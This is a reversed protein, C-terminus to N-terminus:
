QAAGQVVRSEPLPLKAKQLARLGAELLQGGLEFSKQPTKAWAYIKVHMAIDTLEGVGVGPVRDPDISACTKAAEILVQKVTDYDAGYGVSFQASAMSAPDRLSYNRIVESSLVDNPIALRRNDGTKIFTYTLTIDEVEGTDGRINVVDGVRIPQTFAIQMGAVVNAFTSRAAIGVVVGVVGASALLATGLTRLVEFQATALAFVVLWLAARALRRTLWLRTVIEHHEGSQARRITGALTFQLVRDVVAGAFVVALAIFMARVPVHHAQLEALEQWM